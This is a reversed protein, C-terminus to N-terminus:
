SIWASMGLLERSAKDEVLFGGVGSLSPFVHYTYSISFTLLTHMYSMCGSEGGTTVM